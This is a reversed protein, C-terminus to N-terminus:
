SAKGGAFPGQKQDIGRLTDFSLRKGISIQSELIVKNKNWHDVLDVKRLRIWIQREFLQLVDDAELTLSLNVIGDSGQLIKDQILNGSIRVPGSPAPSPQVKPSMWSSFLIKGKGASYAMTAGTIAILLVIMMFPKLRNTKM